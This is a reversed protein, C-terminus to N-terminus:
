AYDVIILNSKRMSSAKRFISFLAPVIHLTESQMSTNVLKVQLM